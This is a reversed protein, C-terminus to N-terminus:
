EGVVEVKVNASVERHLRIAVTYSGLTKIPEDLEVKRKDIRVDAARQIAEAIDAATIAGYLKTGSGVKGTLTIEMGALREAVEKADELRKEGKLDEVKLRRSLEALNAATAPMAMQRPFLYNRAYGAAVNVVDDPKGLSNVERTLIVKM